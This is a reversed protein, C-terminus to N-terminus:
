LANVEEIALQREREINARRNDVAAPYALMTQISRRWSRAALVDDWSKATDLTRDPVAKLENELEKTLREWGPHNFLSEMERFYDQEDDNLLPRTM